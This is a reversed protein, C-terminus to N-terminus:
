VSLAYLSMVIVANVLVWAILFAPRFKLKIEKGIFFAGAAPIGAGMLLFGALQEIFGLAIPDHPVSFRTEYFAVIPSGLFACVYFLLDVIM